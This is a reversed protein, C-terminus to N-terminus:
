SVLDRKDITWKFSLDDLFSVTDNFAKCVLRCNKMREDKPVYGLINALVEVPIEMDHIEM